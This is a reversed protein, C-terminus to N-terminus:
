SLDVGHLIAQERLVDALQEGLDSPAGFWSPANGPLRMPDRAGRTSRDVGARELRAIAPTRPQAAFPGRTFAAMREAIQETPLGRAAADRVDDTPPPAMVDPAPQAVGIEARRTRADRSMTWYDRLARLLPANPPAATGRAAPPAAQEVLANRSPELATEWEVGPGPTAAAENLLPRRGTEPGAISGLQPPTVRPSAGTPWTSSRPRDASTADPAQTTSTTTPQHDLPRGGARIAVDRAPARDLLARLRDSLLDLLREGILDDPWRTGLAAARRATELMTPIARTRARLQARATSPGSAAAAFAAIANTTV